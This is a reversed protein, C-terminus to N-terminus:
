LIKVYYQPQDLWYNTAVIVHRCPIEVLDWFYCSCTHSNLDAVFKKMTFGQTVKFKAERTWVIIWHGSKEVDRDLRKSPKPM